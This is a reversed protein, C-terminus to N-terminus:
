RMRTQDNFSDDIDAYRRSKEENDKIKHDRYDNRFSETPTLRIKIKYEKKHEDWKEFPNSKIMPFFNRIIQTLENKRKQYEKKEKNSMKDTSFVGNNQALLELFGWCKKMEMKDKKRKDIFGFKECDSDLTEDSVKITIKYTESLILHIEHWQTNSSLRIEVARSKKSNAIKSKKTLKEEIKIDARYQKFGQSDKALKLEYIKIYGDAEFKILPEIFRYDLDNRSTTVATNKGYEKARRCLEPLMYKKHEVYSRVIKEGPLLEEDVFASIYRGLDHKLKIRNKKTIKATFNIGGLIDNFELEDESLLEILKELEAFNFNNKAIKELIIPEEEDHDGEMAFDITDKSSEIATQYFERLDFKLDEIELNYDNRIKAVACFIEKNKLRHINRYDAKRLSKFDFVAENQSSSQHLLNYIIFVFDEDVFRNKALDCNM